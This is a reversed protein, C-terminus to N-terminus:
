VLWLNLQKLIKNTKTLEKIPCLLFFFYFLTSCFLYYFLTFWHLSLFIHFFFFIHSVLSYTHFLFLLWFLHKLFSFVKLMNHVYGTNTSKNLFYSHPALYLKYFRSTLFFFLIITNKYIKNTQAIKTPCNLKSFLSECTIM